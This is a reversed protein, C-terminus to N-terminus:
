SLETSMSRCLMDAIKKRLDSLLRKGYIVLIILLRRGYIVIGTIASRDRRDGLTGLKEPNRVHGNLRQALYPKHMGSGSGANHEGEARIKKLLENRFENMKSKEQRPKFSLKQPRHVEM